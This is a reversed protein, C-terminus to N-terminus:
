SHEEHLYRILVHQITQLCPTIAGKDPAANPSPIGALPAVLITAQLRNHMTACQTRQSSRLRFAWGNPARM